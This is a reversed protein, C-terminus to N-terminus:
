SGARGAAGEAECQPRRDGQGQHGRAGVAESRGSQRGVVARIGATPQLVGAPVDDRSSTRGARVRTVAVLDVAPCGHLPVEGLCVSREPDFSIWRKLRPTLSWPRASWVGPWHFDDFSPLDALNALDAM